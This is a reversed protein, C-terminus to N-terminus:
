KSQIIKLLELVKNALSVKEEYSMNDNYLGAEKLKTEMLIGFDEPSSIVSDKQLLEFMKKYVSSNSNIEYIRGLGASLDIKIRVDTKCLLYDVSTNFINALTKLTPPEPIYINKEWKSVSQKTVHVKKGLAEQTLGLENRCNKIRDGTTKLYDSTTKM